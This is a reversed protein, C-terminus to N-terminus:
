FPSTFPQGHRYKKNIKSHYNSFLGKHYKVSARVLQNAMKKKVANIFSGDNNISPPPFFQKGGFAMGITNM